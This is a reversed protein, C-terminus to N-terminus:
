LTKHNHFLCLSVSYVVQNAKQIEISSFANPSNLTVEITDLHNEELLNVFKECQEPLIHRLIVIVKSHSLRNLFNDTIQNM